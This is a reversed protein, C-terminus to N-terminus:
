FRIQKHDDEKRCNILGYGDPLTINVDILNYGELMNSEYISQAQQTEELSLNQYARSNISAMLQEREELSTETNELVAKEEETVLPDVIEKWENNKLTVIKM